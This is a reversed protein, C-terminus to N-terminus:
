FSWKQDVSSELYGRFSIGHALISVLELGLRAFRYTLPGGTFKAAFTENGSDDVTVLLGRNRDGEVGILDGLTNVSAAEHRRNRGDIEVALLVRNQRLVVLQIRHTVEGHVDVEQADGAVGFNGDVNRNM